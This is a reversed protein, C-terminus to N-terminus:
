EIVYAGYGVVQLKNGATDGSNRLDITRVKLGHKQALALLGSIPGRGCASDYDLHQYDLNEIKRSTEKDMKQATLYDHYHSLDSSIVMLTDDRNYFPELLQAIQNAPCNGVVIPTLSFEPLLVQLFPLQVELSHEHAHAQELFNAFPLKSLASITGVDLPIDGLPTQFYEAESLAVGNLPVRHSPGLLAVRKIQKSHAKILAYASAAIPGSYIYGAHPVIIAKLPSAPAPKAQALYDNLMASLIEPQDPYFAGAVAAPRISSM